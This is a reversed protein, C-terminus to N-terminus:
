KIKNQSRDLVSVFIQRARHEDSLGGLVTLREFFWLAATFVDAGAIVVVLAECM